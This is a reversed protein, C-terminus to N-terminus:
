YIVILSVCNALLNRLVHIKEEVSSVRKLWVLVIVVQNVWASGHDVTIINFENPTTCDSWSCWQTWTCQPTCSQTNCEKSERDPGDCHCSEDAGGLPSIYLYKVSRPLHNSDLGGDRMCTRTRISQGGGCEKDCMSWHCWDSWRCCQTGECLTTEKINFYYIYYEVKTTIASVISLGQCDHGEQGESTLCGRTRTRQGAGCKSSCHSWECWDTWQDCPRGYCFMTEETRVCTTGDKSRNYIKNTKNMLFKNPIKEMYKLRFLSSRWSDRWSLDETKCCHWPWLICFMTGLIVAKLRLIREKAVNHELIVSDQEHKKVEAVAVLVHLGNAGSQGHKVHALIASSQCNNSACERRRQKMGTDCTCSCDSWGIVNQTTSHMKKFIFAMILFLGAPTRPAVCGSGNCVPPPPPAPRYRTPYISPSPSYTPPTFNERRPEPQPPQSRQSQRQRPDVCVGGECPQAQSVAPHRQNTRQQSMLGTFTSRTRYYYRIMELSCKTYKGKSVLFYLLFQGASCAPYADVCKKQCEYATAQMFELPDTGEMATNNHMRACLDEIKSVNSGRSVTIRASHVIGIVFLLLVTSRMVSSHWSFHAPRCLYSPLDPFTALNVSNLEYVSIKFTDFNLCLIKLDYSLHNAPFFVLKLVM